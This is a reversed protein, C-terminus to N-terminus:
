ESKMAYKVQVDLKEAARADYTKESKPEVVVKSGYFMVDRVAEIEVEVLSLKLPVDELYEKVIKANGVISYVTEKAFLTLTISPSKILNQIIRSRKDVAFRLTRENIAIVWSLANTNITENEFDKTALVFLHFTSLENQLEKTLEIELQNAM